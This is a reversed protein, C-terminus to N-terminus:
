RLLNVIKPHGAALALDRARHRDQNRLRKDAGADILVRV